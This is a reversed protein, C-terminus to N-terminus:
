ADPGAPPLRHVVREAPGCPRVPVAEDREPRPVYRVAGPGRDPAPDASGCGADRQPGPTPTLPTFVRCRIWPCPLTAIATQEFTAFQYVAFAHRHAGARDRRAPLHARPAARGRSRARAPDPRCDPTGTGAGHEEEMQHRTMKGNFMSKNLSRSTCTTSTGSSSRSCPWSPRAATRPRPPRSSRAPCSAPPRSRTGCCSGPSRWSWRAGCWPGTSSRRASTTARCGRINKPEAGPQLRLVISRM